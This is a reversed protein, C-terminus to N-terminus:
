AQGLRGLVQSVGLAGVDEGLAASGIANAEAVIRERDGAISGRAVLLAARAEVGWTDLETLEAPARHVGPSSVRHTAAVEAVLEPVSVELAARRRLLLQEREALDAVSVALQAVHREADAVGEEAVRLDSQADAVKADRDRRAREAEALVARAEERARVAAAVREAALREAEALADRASPIGALAAMTESAEQRVAATRAILADVADAEARLSLERAELDRLRDLDPARVTM